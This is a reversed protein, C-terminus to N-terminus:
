KCTLLASFICCEMSRHSAEYFVKEVIGIVLKLSCYCYDYSIRMTVLCELTCLTLWEAVSIDTRQM